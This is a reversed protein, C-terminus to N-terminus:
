GGSSLAPGAGSAGNPDAIYPATAPGPRSAAGPPDLPKSAKGALLRLDDHILKDDICGLLDMQFEHHGADAAAEHGDKQITQNLDDDIKGQEEPAKGHCGSGRAPGARGDPNKRDGDEDKKAHVPTVERDKLNQPFALGRSLAPGANPDDFIGSAGDVRELGDRAIQHTDDIVKGAKVSDSHERHQEIGFVLTEPVKDRAGQHDMLTGVAFRLHEEVIRGRRLKRERLGGM